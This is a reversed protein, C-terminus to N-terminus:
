TFPAASFVAVPQPKDNIVDNEMSTQDSEEINIQAPADYNELMRLIDRGKESLRTYCVARLSKRNRMRRMELLRYAAMLVITNRIHRVSIDGIIYKYEQMFKKYIMEQCPQYIGESRYKKITHLILTWRLMETKDNTVFGKHVWELEIVKM